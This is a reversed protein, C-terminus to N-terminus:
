IKWIFHLPVCILLFPISLFVILVLFFFEPVKASGFTAYYLLGLLALLFQALYKKLILKTIGLQKETVDMLTLRLKSWAVVNEVITLEIKRHSTGEIDSTLHDFQSWLKWINTAHALLGILIFVMGILQVVLLIFILPNMTFNEEMNLFDTYSYSLYEASSTMFFTEVDACSVNVHLFVVGLDLHERSQGFTLNSHYDDHRRMDYDLEKDIGLRFDNIHYYYRWSRYKDHVKFKLMRYDTTNSRFRFTFRPLRQEPTPKITVNWLTEIGTTGTGETSQNSCSSLNATMHYQIPPQYDISVSDVLFKRWPLISLGVMSPWSLLSLESVVLVFICIVAMAKTTTGVAKASVKELEKSALAKVVPTKSIIENNEYMIFSYDSLKIGRETAVYQMYNGLRVGSVKEMCTELVQVIHIGMIYTFFWDFSFKTDGFSWALEMLAIPLRSLQFFFWFRNRAITCYTKANMYIIIFMSIEWGIVCFAKSSPIRLVDRWVAKNILKREVRNRIGTRQRLLKIPWLIPYFLLTLFLPWLKTQNLDELRQLGNSERNQLQRMESKKIMRIGTKLEEFEHEEVLVKNESSQYCNECLYKTFCEKCRYSPGSLLRWGGPNDETATCCVKGDCFRTNGYSTVM